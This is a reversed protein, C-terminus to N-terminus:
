RTELGPDPIVLFTGAVQRDNTGFVMEMIYIEETHELLIALASDLIAGVMDMMVAPPSPQFSLGTTDSVHNLFFSGMINGVEGLTSTEMEALQKTTGQPQGLLLDVLDYAVKPEYVIVMHGNSKGSIELYVAIVLAEPGGFLYPIKKVPVKKFDISAIKIDQGAMQSLGAVANNLGGSFIEEAERNGANIEQFANMANM